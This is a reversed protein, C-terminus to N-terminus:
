HTNILKSAQETTLRGTMEANIEHQYRRIAARTEPGFVGDVRSGYYGLRALAVQTRRRDFESMTDDGPLVELSPTARASPVSEATLAPPIVALPPPPPPPLIAIPPPPAIVKVPEAPRPAGALYGPRAPMHLTAISAKGGELQSQTSAMLEETRVVPGALATVLATALPTLNDPPLAQTVAIVGVGDPVAIGALTQFDPGPVADPRPVIDFAVLATAAPDRSVTDILSKALMGQTLVDSPRAVRATVPLVFARDNFAAGYGCVYVVAAGRADTLRQAFEGIGADIGGISTDLRETVDFGLARLAASVARTSRVCAPVGPLSTYTGNGVVLASRAPEARANLAYLLCALIAASGAAARSPAIRPIPL